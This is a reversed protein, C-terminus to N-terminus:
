IWIIATIGSGGDAATPLRQGAPGTADYWADTYPSDLWAAQVSGAANAGILFDGGGGWHRSMAEFEVGFPNSGLSSWSAGSDQTRWMAPTGNLFAYLETGGTEETPRFAGVRETTWTGDGIDSFSSIGDTSRGLHSIAGAMRGFAYVYNGFSATGPYHPTHPVAFYTRSNIQGETAAGLSYETPTASLDATSFNYIRLDGNTWATMYLRSADETDLDMALPRVSTSTGTAATFTGDIRFADIGYQAGLTWTDGTDAIETHVAYYRYAATSGPINGITRWQYTNTINLFDIPLSGVTTWGSIDGTAILAAYAAASNTARIVPNKDYLTGSLKASNM